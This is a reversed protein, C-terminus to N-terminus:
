DDKRWYLKKFTCYDMIEDAEERTDAQLYKIFHFLIWGSALFATLIPCIVILALIVLVIILTNKDKETM